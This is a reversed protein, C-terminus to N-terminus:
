AARNSKMLRMFYARALGLCLRTTGAATVPELSPRNTGCHGDIANNRKAGRPRRRRCSDASRQATPLVLNLRTTGENVTSTRRRGLSAVVEFGFAGDDAVLGAGAANSRADCRAATAANPACPAFRKGTTSTAADCGVPRIRGLRTGRSGCCRKSSSTGM